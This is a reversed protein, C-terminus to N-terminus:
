VHTDDITAFTRVNKKVGILENISALKTHPCASQSFVQTIPKLGEKITLLCANVKGHKIFSLAFSKQKLTEFMKVEQRLDANHKEMFNIGLLLLKKNRTAVNRMFEYREEYEM